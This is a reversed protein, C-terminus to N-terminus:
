PFSVGPDSASAHLFSSMCIFFLYAFTIPIAPSINNWIWPASFIFFLVGPIVICSGTAINVPRHRTNQLRGGICFVTNGQFYEYNRGLEAKIKDKTPPAKGNGDAPSVRPSSAVSELKEGGQMERNGSGSEARPM